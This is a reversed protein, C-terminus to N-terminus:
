RPSRPSPARGVGWGCAPRTRWRSLQYVVPLAGAARRYDARHPGFCRRLGAARGPWRLPRRRAARRAAITSGTLEGAHDHEGVCRSRRVPQGTSRRRRGRERPASLPARSAHGGASPLGKAGIKSRCCGPDGDILARPGRRAAPCTSTWRCSRTSERCWPTTTSSAAAHLRLRGDLDGVQAGADPRLHPAAGPAMKQAVRGAVIMLDAQRPSARFVEAGFRAIDYRPRGTAMM